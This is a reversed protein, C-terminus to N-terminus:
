LELEYELWKEGTAGVREYVAQARHNDLATLWLMSPAGERAAREACERILADAAGTGRASPAVFLDELVAVRAARLSSWKWGVVAFGVVDEGADWAVVLMGDSDPVAILERAMRELGSDPPSSEYFDCYARMLPLLAPIDREEASDVRV